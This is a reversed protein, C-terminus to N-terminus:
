PKAPDAAATFAPREMETEARRLLDTLYWQGDHREVLVEADIPQGALTYRLQVRAQDGTQEIVKADVSALAQDFDLGYGTLVQKSRELFPGLRRLSRTMGHHRFAEAGAGFGAQTDAKGLGTLRAAAILRPLAAKALKADGLPAKQGWDSLAGILQVYHKQEAESYGQGNEGEVFQTAFLGLAKAAGNLERGAGAFQRSYAAQLNKDGGPQSLATIFAPIREDLPLETVPWLTRGETWATEMRAHVAPPLAHQAFSPLDNNKLDEALRTVAQAPGRAAPKVADPVPEPQCGSLAIALLGMLGLLLVPRFLRNLRM